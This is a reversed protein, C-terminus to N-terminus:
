GGSPLRGILQGIGLNGAVYADLDAANSQAVLAIGLFDLREPALPGESVVRRAARDVRAVGIPVIMAADPNLGVLLVRDPLSDIYEDDGSVVPLALTVGIPGSVEIGMPQLAYTLVPVASPHTVYGVRLGVLPQAHVIGEPAGDPMVIQASSLDLAVGGEGLLAHADGSRLLSFPIQPNLLPVRLVGAENRREPQLTIRHEVTGYRRDVMGPNVVVRHTGGAIAEEVLGYGFGFAGEADTVTSKGSDPLTVTVGVLPNLFQDAVLGSVLTPLRRVDFSSRLVEEGEYSVRVSVKGGYGYERRPYFTFTQRGPVTSFGGPVPAADRDIDVFRVVNLTMLDAGPSTPAYQKGHATETVEFALRAPDIPRNFEVTVHRNAEVDTAGSPPDIGVVAPEIQAADELSFRSSSQARVAGGEDRVVVTLRHESMGLPLQLTGHAGTGSLALPVAAGGDVSAFAVDGVATGTVRAVVSVTVPDDTTTITSDNPPSVISISRDADLHVVLDHETHNGALDWATITVTTDQGGALSLAFSFDWSSSSVPLVGISQNNTTLGALNPEVVTGTVLYPTEVVRNVFPAQSLSTSVVPPMDDFRVAFGVSSSAGDCDTAVVTVPYPEGDGPVSVAADFSVLTGSGYPQTPVGNVTVSEVCTTAEVTGAVQLTSRTIFMEPRVGALTIKPPLAGGSGAGDGRSVSLTTTVVTEPTEALITLTNAGVQLPVDHFTFAYEGGSGTPFALQGGLLLRVQASPLTTRVTGVVDVTPTQVVSGPTPSIVRIVPTSSLTSTVTWVLRTENADLDRAVITLTNLGPALPVEATFTSTAAAVIAAVQVTPFRDNEVFVVELGSGVDIASGSLVVSTAPTEQPMGEALKLVPGLLDQVTVTVEDSLVAGAPNRVEVSFRAGDDDADASGVALTAQNAGSLPVGGRRWQYSLASGTATVGLSFPQGASVTISTPQTVITPPAICDGQGDCVRGSGCSTGLAVPAFSVGSGPTCTGVTCPNGDDLDPPTGNQCAANSCSEVGNCANGDSCALFSLGGAVCRRISTGECTDVFDEDAAGNCDDDVGDCTGDSSAGQGPACTDVVAGNSCDRAGTSACAGVGCTTPTAPYDEDTAGDCDDDVGDCTADNMGPFGPECTTDVVGDVCTGTGTRRCAGVGCPVAEGQFDEDVSGDCDDDVGNCSADSSAPQGPSCENRVSGATCVRTGSSACVGVGCSVSTVVFDEDVLGDCDDDVGDCSADAAAAAGPVCQDQVTGGICVSQGTAACAGVGCSTPQAAYDEDVSGDCDDDIGDCTGDAEAAPRPTCHDVIAGSECSTVGTAACAGVGCQSAQPVFDEDVAGDCDDDAGNCTADGSAPAGADCSDTVAGDVCDTAGMSACAGVGCTTMASAFDEDVAGDCDDDVGDCSPDGMAPQGARCSDVVSGSDCSTTGQAACAGVGCSTSSSVFDEDAVGDCDDDVGDCTNDASAPQGPECADVLQGASCRRVGSTACAGVGCSVLENLYDEDVDGDCDDDLGNCVADDSARQGPVCSDRVVGGECSTSGQAGCAGVGCSTASSEYDEDVFGDCDDDVSDCTADSPAAQGPACDAQEVGLVCSTEITVACAGVGCTVSRPVYNEDVQGDCNADIGDCTEDLAAPTGPECGDVVLGAVCSTVGGAACAGVGCSTPEGVYGEDVDGDCDDDVGDCTADELDGESPACDDIIQGSVCSREGTASCAGVGCSTITELFDEDISGDCDDDAGNCSADDAAGTTPTCTDAPRGLVCLVSGTAACAGVGCTSPVPVYDEDAEGDCDDDVGDCSADGLAPASASCSDEVQGSVCSRTGTAACAGVGCTTQLAEFDEDVSGDCDDDVGNCTADDAAPPRPQCTSTVQGGVCETSGADACAGVGCATPVSVYDEDLAGDCDDDVGDCTSDGSSGAGARCSDSVIGGSCSTVGTSACTGAGCTTPAGVFDEDVAGDCDEDIGDCTADEGQPTGLTCSDVVRGGVCSTAGSGTCAGVGCTTATSVYDEDVSGDCDNDFGDCTADRDAAPLPSCESSEVGALCSTTGQAACAGVGCSVSRPVYGEDVSGDCDNDIGDCTADEAAPTNPDCSDVLQGAVCSTSGTGACVGEGCSTAEGAFDEDAAGDCDDDVGDCTADATDGPLPTCGDEV